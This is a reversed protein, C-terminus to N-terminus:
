VHSWFLSAIAAIIAIKMVLMCFVVFVEEREIQKQELTKMSNEQIGDMINVGNARTFLYNGCDM